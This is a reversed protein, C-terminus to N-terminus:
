SVARNFLTSDFGRDELLALLARDSKVERFYVGSCISPELALLWVPAREFNICFPVPNVETVFGVEVKWGLKAKAM